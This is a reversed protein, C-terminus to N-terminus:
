RTVEHYLRAIIEEIPPNEVYLDRIAYRAAIRSILTAAPVQAPDFRLCVRRDERRIVTADPDSVEQEEALDVILWHETTVRARLAALSGDSLIKGQNIVLVRNCLAEIDDMDHTTLIVTVGRERNLRRVFDRVALKSVADLGITPEDLYLLAPSHLLAATLDCRMRQGLSLQRVPTDLLPALDLLGAMEDLSRRYDVRRV